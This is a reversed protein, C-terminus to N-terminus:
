EQRKLKNKLYLNLYLCAIIILGLGFLYVIKYNYSSALLGGFFMGLGSGLDLALFYTANATGRRNHNAMNILLTQIAPGSVGFGAGLLVSSILFTYDNIFFILLLSALIVLVIGGQVVYLQKGENLAKGTMLRSIIIGVAFLLFFLSAPMDLNVEKVYLAMYAMLTGYMFYMFAIIVAVGIGKKLVFRDFSLVEKPPAQTRPKTRIFLVLVFALISSAIASLFLGRYSFIELLYLGIMPGIAMSIVTFASYYSLGESRRASPLVDIVLTNVCTTAMAFCVGLLIRTLILAAVSKSILYGFLLLAFVAVTFTYFKRHDYKDVLFGSFPRSLLASIIYSSLVFGAEAATIEFEDICYMAIVPMLLYFSIFILFGSITTIIYNSNFM